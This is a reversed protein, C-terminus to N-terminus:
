SGFLLRGALFSSLNAATIAAMDRWQWRGRFLEAFIACEAVAAFIEAVFVYSSGALLVPM